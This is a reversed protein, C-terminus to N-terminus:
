QHGPRSGRRAQNTSQSLIPADLAGQDRSTEEHIDGQSAGAEAGPAKKARQADAPPGSRQIFRVSRWDAANTLQGHGAARRTTALGPGDREWARRTPASVGNVLSIAVRAVELLLAAAPTQRCWKSGPASLLRGVPQTPPAKHRMLKVAQVRGLLSANSGRQIPTAGERGFNRVFKTVLPGFVEDVPQRQCVNV